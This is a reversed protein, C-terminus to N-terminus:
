LTKVWRTKGCDYIRYLKNADACQTETWSPDWVLDPNDRFRAKQFLNKSARTWDTYEGVYTYDPAVTGEVTFGNTRYMHGDSIDHASFSVWSQIHEGRRQLDREANVMLKTFGGPVTGCTAYRKIDWQGVVLGGRRINNRPRGVTMVARINGANDRLAYHYTGGVGGQIHNASYFATAQEGTILCMSLKRAPTRDFILPDADPLVNRLKDAAGLKHAVARIVIKRKDRWDDEWVHIIRVGQTEALANKHAHYSKDRGSATSHWYVGNFEIAIRKEPIYMDLEYNGPLVNRVSRLVTCEPVLAAVIEALATEDASSRPFCMPCKKAQTNATRQSPSAEWIHDPNDPCQWAVTKGSGFSITTALSQDVLEAAIDPHTTAIDNFGPLVTKNVCIPCGAGQNVRGAIRGMWQHDPHNPCQWLFRGDTGKGVKTILSQDVLQAALDPHTTALDNVGPIIHRGACYPCGSNTKARHYVTAEWTHTPDVPCQWALKRSSGAGVVTTMDQDVLQAALNPHTTALDNAGVTTNRGSCYPCGGTNSAIRSMPATWTHGEACRFQQKKNTFATIQTGVEPDALLAAAEPHTTAVDNFGSKVIKGKCIPCGTGQTPHSRNCVQAFWTHDPHETCRWEVKKTTSTSLTDALSPDVLQAILEPHTDKLM